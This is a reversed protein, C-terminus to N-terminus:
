RLDECLKKFQESTLPKGSTKTLYVKGKIRKMDFRTWNDWGKDVFVDVINGMVFYKVM